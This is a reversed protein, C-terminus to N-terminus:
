SRSTCTGRSQPAPHPAQAPRRGRFPLFGHTRRPSTLPRLGRRVRSRFDTPDVRDGLLLAVRALFQERDDAPVADIGTRCRSGRRRAVPRASPCTVDPDATRGATQETTEASPPVPPSARRLGRLDGARGRAMLLGDPRVVYLEGARAGPTAVEGYRTPCRRRTTGGTQAGVLM